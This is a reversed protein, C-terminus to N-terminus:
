VEPKNPVGEDESSDIRLLKSEDLVFKGGLQSIIFDFKQNLVQLMFVVVSLLSYRPESEDEGDSGEPEKAEVSDAVWGKENLARELEHKVFVTYKQKGDQRVPLVGLVEMWRLPHTRNKLNWTLEPHKSIEESYTARLNRISVFLEPKGNLMGEIYSLEKKM